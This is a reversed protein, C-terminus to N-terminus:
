APSAPQIDMRALTADAVDLLHAGDPLLQHVIAVDKALLHGALQAM